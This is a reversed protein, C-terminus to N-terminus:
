EETPSQGRSKLRQERQKKYALVSQRDVLWDRGFKQGELRGRALLDRIGRTSIGLIDAAEKTPIFEDV